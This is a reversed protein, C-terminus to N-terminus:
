TAIDYHIHKLLVPIVTDPSSLQPLHGESSLLEVISSGGLHQHLYEAVVVPVALDRKSQIIHCPVTVLSLIQRMDSQFITQLVSLAIDPRMNFLTRSFEQVAVSEMDGGVAMPAFGSCWAKYNAAMADFLQDLDEQEFGGFYDADNLYRPSASVMIIKTFLDPRSISAVTGIMASVSHGVFICSSVRLEELIALLDYAYGQLTSYRGFDFYEPNTTGAGMNDYLVVRFEDVLQPVIHKWVSQDTGFGHALVIFRTGSGVVKVNHAEEVVGM